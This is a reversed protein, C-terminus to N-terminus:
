LGLKKMMADRYNNGIPIENKEVFIRNGEIYSIQSKNIIFSRHVRIFSSAPLLEELNSFPELDTFQAAFQIM